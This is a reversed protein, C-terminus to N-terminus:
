PIGGAELLQLIRGWLEQTVPGPAPLFRDFLRSIPLMGRVSNTLFAEDATLLSKMTLPPELVSLGAAGARDLVLGRMVGPLLPGDLSPTILRSGEVLFINSRSAECILGDPTIFLVEDAGEAVARAHAIRLRWYNLTKHRSLDDNPDVLISRAIRVGSTPATPPLPGMSMWITSGLAAQEADTVGGSLTIRLRVDRGSRIGCAELLRSVAPLDPLHGADIPLELERASRQLRHLHRALLTPHGQWTRFTEFLGLGHEFTRDLVSVRLAADPIVEGQFWIM